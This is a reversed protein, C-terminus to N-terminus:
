LELREALMSVIMNDHLRASSDPLPQSSSIFNNTCQCSGFSSLIVLFLIAICSQACYDETRPISAFMLFIFLLLCSFFCRLFLFVNCLFSVVFLFVFFFLPSFLFSLFFVVLVCLYSMVNLRCLFGFFFLVLHRM